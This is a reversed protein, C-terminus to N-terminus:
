HPKGNGNRKVRDELKELEETLKEIQTQMFEINVKNHMGSELQKEHEDLVKQMHDILMFQQADDPLAGLEGLPWRIRFDTNKEIDSNVLKYNTEINNLREIIGFYAWVSVAVAIVISILNRISLDVGTDERVKVVNSGM